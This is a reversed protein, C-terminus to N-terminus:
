SCSNIYGKMQIHYLYEKPIERIIKKISKLDQFIGYVASGSGSMSAYLAGYAYMKNKVEIIQAYEKGVSVEFDNHIYERWKEIPLTTIDNLLSKGEHNQYIISQYALRTDSYIAPYIVIIPYPIFLNISRTKEGKEYCFQATNHLFLPVDSGLLQAYKLLDSTNLQLHYLKNLAVLAYAADASGGGLGAGMPIRKHLHIYAGKVQQPYDKQLLQFAKVCLNQDSKGSITLGQYSFILESCPLVELIDHWSIPVCITEINHYGDSRKDLIRLGINIKCNPYVIM